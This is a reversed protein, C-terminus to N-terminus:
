RSPLHLPKTALKSISLGTSFLFREFPPQESVALLVSRKPEEEHEKVRANEYFM